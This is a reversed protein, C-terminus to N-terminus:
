PSRRKWYHQSATWDEELSGYSPPDNALLLRQLNEGLQYVTLYLWSWHWPGSFLYSTESVYSHAINRRIHVDKCWASCRIENEENPGDSRGQRCNGEKDDRAALHRDVILCITEIITRNSASVIKVIEDVKRKRRCDDHHNREAVRPYSFKTANKTLHAESMAQICYCSKCLERRHSFTNCIPLKLFTM